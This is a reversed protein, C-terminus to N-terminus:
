RTAEPWQDIANVLAEDTPHSEPWQTVANRLPSETPHSALWRALRGRWKPSLMPDPKRSPTVIAAAAQKSM